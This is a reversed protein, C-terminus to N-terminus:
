FQEATLFNVISDYEAVSFASTKEMMDVNGPYDGDPLSERWDAAFRYADRDLFYVTQNRASRPFDSWSHIGWFPGVTQMLGIEDVTRALFRGALYSELPVPLADIAVRDFAVDCLSNVIEVTRGGDRIGYLFLQRYQPSMLRAVACIAQARVGELHYGLMTLKANLEAAQRMNSLPEVVWVDAHLAARAALQVTYDSQRQDLMSAINVKAGPVFVIGRGDASKTQVSGSDGTQIASFRHIDWFIEAGGISFAARYTQRADHQYVVSSPGIDIRHPAGLAAYGFAGNVTERFLDPPVSAAVAQRGPFSSYRDRWEKLLERLQLGEFSVVSDTLLPGRVQRHLVRDLVDARFFTTTAYSGVALVLALFVVVLSRLTMRRNMM